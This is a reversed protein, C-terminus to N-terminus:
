CGLEFRYSKWGRFNANFGNGRAPTAIHEFPSFHGSELLRDHLTEDKAPDPKKQDHTLYSVRACRATAWKKLLNLDASRDSVDCYPAHWEGYNLQVPKSNEMAVWMEDALAKIEPQADPHRRLNYFNTWETATVITKMEQFPELLRNVIQKHVRLNMMQEAYTAASRRANLWIAMAEARTSPDLEEKAQMGPMNKGWSVPMAPDMLVQDIMKGIPIARSSAANRSFVRHTMVESHIFRPYTLQVTTLRVGDPSLSDTIVKASISM